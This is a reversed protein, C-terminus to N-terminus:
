LSYSIYCLSGNAHEGEDKEEVGACVYCMMCWVGYKFVTIRVMDCVVGYACWRVWTMALAGLLVVAVAPPFQGLRRSSACQSGTRRRM